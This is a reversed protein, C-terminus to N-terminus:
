RYPVYAPNQFCKGSFLTQGRTKSSFFDEGRIIDSFFTNIGRIKTLFTEAGKKKLFVTLGRKIEELFAKFILRHISQVYTDYALSCM